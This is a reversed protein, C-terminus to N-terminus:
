LSLSMNNKPAIIKRTSSSIYRALEVAWRRRGTMQPLAVLVKRHQKRSYVQLLEPTTPLDNAFKHLIEAGPCNFKRWVFFVIYKM